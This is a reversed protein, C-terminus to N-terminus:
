PTPAIARAFLALRLAVTACLSAIANVLMPLRDRRLLSLRSCLQFFQEDSLNLISNFNVTLASM